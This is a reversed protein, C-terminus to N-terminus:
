GERLPPRHLLWVHPGGDPVDAEDVVEFGHRGYFRVNREASTDCYAPTGNADCCALVPGIVASGLGRRQHDPHTGMCALYWHAPEPRLARILAEADHAAQLRDGFLRAIVPALRDLAEDSPGVHGPPMWMAASECRDTVWIEGYPLGEAQAYLRYLGRLRRLHEDAAVTWTTWPYGEFAAALTLSVADLDADAARRVTPM